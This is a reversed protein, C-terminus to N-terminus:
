GGLRLRILNALMRIGDSRRVNSSSTDRWVIPHERIRFGRTKLRWLLEVDFEFGSSTMERIVADIASKKFVKAGCQTDRFPLGFLLRVICNFIRSEIRRSLGQPKELVAGRVWRSGIVGDAGDILSFLDRMQSFSTSADADMYGVLPASALTVGERIAGGKGMRGSRYLCRVTMEPHAGAFDLVLRPTEDNGECVFIFEGEAGAIQLLLRPIREAENYAPIVLTFPPSPPRTTKGSM